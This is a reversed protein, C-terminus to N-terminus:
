PCRTPKTKTCIFKEEDYYTGLDCVFKMDVLQNKSYGLTCYHFLRCDRPDSYFQHIKKNFCNFIFKRDTPIEKRIDIRVVKTLPTTSLIAKGFKSKTPNASKLLPADTLSIDLKAIKFRKDTPVTSSEVFKTLSVNTDTRNKQDELTATNNSLDHKIFSDNKDSDTNLVLQNKFNSQERGRKRNTSSGFRHRLYEKKNQKKQTTKLSPLTTSIEMIPSTVESVLVTETVKPMVTTITNKTETSEDVAAFNNETTGEVIIGETVLTTEAYNTTIVPTNTESTTTFDTNEVTPLYTTTDIVTETANVFDLVITNTTTEVEKKTTTEKPEHVSPEIQYTLPEYNDDVYDPIAFVSLETQFGSTSEHKDSEASINKDEIIKKSFSKTPTVINWEKQPLSQTESQEFYSPETTPTTSDDIRETTTDFLKNRPITTVTTSDYSLDEFVTDSNEYDYYNITKDSQTILAETTTPNTLTTVNANEDVTTFEDYFNEEPKTNDNYDPNITTTFTESNSSITTTVDLTDEEEQDTVSETTTELNREVNASSKFEEVNMQRRILINKDNNLDYGNVHNSKRSSSVLGSRRTHNKAKSEYHVELNRQKKRGNVETTTLLVTSTNEDDNVSSPTTSIVTHRDETKENKTKTDMLIKRFIREYGNDSATEVNSVPALQDNIQTIDDSSVPFTIHNEQNDKKKYWNFLYRLLDEAEQDNRIVDDTNRKRRSKKLKPVDHYFPDSIVDEEKYDDYSAPSSGLIHTAGITGLSYNLRRGNNDSVSASASIIIRPPSQHDKTYRKTEIHNGVSFPSPSSFALPPLTPLLPIPLPLHSKETQYPPTKTSTFAPHNRYTTAPFNIKHPRKNSTRYISHYPHGDATPPRFNAINLQYQYPHPPVDTHYEISEETQPYSFGYNIETPTAIPSGHSHTLGYSVVSKPTLTTETKDLLSQLPQNTTSLLPVRNQKENKYITTHTTVTVRTNKESFSQQQYSIPIQSRSIDPPAGAKLSINIEEPNFRIDPPNVPFHHSTIVKSIDRATTSTASTTFFPAFTTSTITSTSPLTTPSKKSDSPYDIEPSEEVIPPQTNGYLELNLSYFQESKTCDVEDIRECVRTEQDFVTGNLCLFRIDMPEDLQGITCVHFMQCNTELDAYYGGIVKGVCSFNTDPLNDFDLFGPELSMALLAFELLFLWLLGQMTRKM